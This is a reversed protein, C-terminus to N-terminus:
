TTDRQPVHTSVGSSNELEIICSTTDRQPVHTSVSWEGDKRGYTKTTDRQPVHTSVLFAKYEERVDFRRIGSPYTPQFSM